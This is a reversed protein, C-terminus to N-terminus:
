NVVPGLDRRLSIVALSQEVLTSLSDMGRRFDVQRATVLIRLGLLRDSQTQEFTDALPLLSGPLWDITRATLRAQRGTPSLVRV